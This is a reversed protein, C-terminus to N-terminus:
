PKVEQEVKRLRVGPGEGNQPVGIKVPGGEAAIVYVSTM